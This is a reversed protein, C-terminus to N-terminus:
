EDKDDGKKESGSKEESNGKDEGDGKKEGDGDKEDGDKEGGEKKEEKDDSKEKSDKDDKKEKGKGKGEDDKKKQKAKKEEEKKKAEEEKIKKKEEAEIKAWNTETDAIGSRNMSGRLHGSSLRESKEIESRGVLSVFISLGVIATLMFRYQGYWKPTWGRTAARSDAFYLAVFAMFQTTLGYEIPLLLTPWAVISAAVGMGYRFRTRALDSAKEAYELGWHIAGLFSIIVAGYGLQLPELINLLYRAQDHNIFLADLLASGTPLEKALDWALYVTSLSTAFYPITGALGLIHSEKPIKSLRFADKVIDKVM